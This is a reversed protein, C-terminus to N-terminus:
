AERDDQIKKVKKAPIQKQIMEQLEKTSGVFFANNTVKKITDDKELDKMQKHLDILDKNAESATKLLQSVVEYARPSDTESAVKLIGEIAVKSNDIVDKINGRVEGYDSKQDFLKKDPFNSLDLEVQKRLPLKEDKKQEINLADELPPKDAM